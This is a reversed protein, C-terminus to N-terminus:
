KVFSEGQQYNLVLYELISLSENYFSTNYYEPRESQFNTLRLPLELAECNNIKLFISLFHDAFCPTKLNFWPHYIYNNLNIYTERPMVPFRCMLARPMGREGTFCTSDSALTGVKYKKDRFYDQQFFSPIQNLDRPPLHDDTLVVLYEGNSIRAAQNYGQPGNICLSDQLFIVRDDHINETGCVIVENDKMDQEFLSDIVKKVFLEYPRNTSILISLTKSM